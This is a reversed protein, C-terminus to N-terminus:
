KSESKPTKDEKKEETSEAKEAKKEGVFYGGEANTGITRGTEKELKEAAENQYFPTSMDLKDEPITVNDSKYTGDPNAFLNSGANTRHAYIVWCVIPCVVFLFVLVFFWKLTFQYDM